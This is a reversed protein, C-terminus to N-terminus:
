WVDNKSTKLMDIVELAFNDEESPHAIRSLLHNRWDEIAGEKTCSCGFVGEQPDPGLIVCYADGDLYVAPRLEKVEKPLPENEYDMPVLELGAMNMQEM